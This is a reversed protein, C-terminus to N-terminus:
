CCRMLESNIVQTFKRIKDESLNSINKKIDLPEKNENKKSVMKVVFKELFNMKNFSFEGGFYEKAVANDFLEKPFANKTQVLAEEGERMCCIYLGIKKNRLEELKNTCFEKAEKRIQGIYISSGIIIINYKSLDLDKETKLNCLDVNGTLSQSLIKACKESSGYKTAYAILTNM